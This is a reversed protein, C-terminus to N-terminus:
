VAIALEDVWLVQKVAFCHEGESDTMTVYEGVDLRKNQINIEAFRDEEDFGSGFDLKGKPFFVFPLLDDGPRLKGWWGTTPFKQSICRTEDLYVDLTLPDLCRDTRSGILLVRALRSM